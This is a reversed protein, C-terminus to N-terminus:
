LYYFVVGLICGLIGGCIIQFISHCKKYYRAWGTGLFVGLNLTHFLLNNTTFKNILNINYAFFYGATSMHGSPLGPQGEVIGNDSIYDCDCAGKPRKALETTNFLLYKLIQAILPTVSYGIIYKLTFLPQIIEFISLIFYIVIVIQYSLPLISIINALYLLNM